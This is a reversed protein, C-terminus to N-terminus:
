RAGDMIRLSGVNMTSLTNILETRFGTTSAAPKGLYIDDVYITAGAEASGNNRDLHLDDPEARGGVYRQPSAISTSIGHAM